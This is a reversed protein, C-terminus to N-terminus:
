QVNAVVRYWATFVNNLSGPVLTRNAVDTKNELDVDYTLTGTAPQLAYDYERGIWRSGPTTTISLMTTAADPNHVPDFLRCVTPLQKVTISNVYTAPRLTAAVEWLFDIKAACHYLRVEGCRVGGEVGTDYIVRGNGVGGADTRLDGAPNTYLDRLEVGTWGACDLVAAQLTADASTTFTKAETAGIVSEYTATTIAKLQVDTLARTSAIAYVRGVPTGTTGPRAASKFPLIVKNRLRYRADADEQLAGQQYEWDATTLGTFAKYTLEYKSDATELWALVYLNAPPPLEDDLGPDGLARSVSVDPTSVAVEIPVSLTSVQRQLAPEDNSCAALM